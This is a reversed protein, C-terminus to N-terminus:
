VHLLHRGLFSSLFARSNTQVSAEDSLTVYFRVSNAVKFDFFLCCIKGEGNM